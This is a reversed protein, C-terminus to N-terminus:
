CLINYIKVKNENILLCVLKLIEKSIKDSNIGNNNSFNTIKTNFINQIKYINNFSKKDFNQKNAYFYDMIKQTIEKLINECIDFCKKLSEFNETSLNNKKELDSIINELEKKTSINDKKLSENSFLFSKNNIENKELSQILLKNTKNLNSIEKEYSLIDSKLKKKLTQWNKKETLFKYLENETIEFRELLTEFEEEKKELSNRLFQNESYLFQISNANRNNIEM